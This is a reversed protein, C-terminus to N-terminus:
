VIAKNAEKVEETADDDEDKFWFRECAKDYADGSYKSVVYAAVGAGILSGIIPFWSGVAAGMAVVAMGGGVGGAVGAFTSLM